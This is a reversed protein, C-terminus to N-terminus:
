QLNIKNKNKISFYAWIACIPQTIVLGVGATFVAVVGTVIFMVVAGVGTSYLMGLPGFFFGLLAGIGASKQNQVIIVQQNKETNKNNEM